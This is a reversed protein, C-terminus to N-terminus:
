SRAEKENEPPAAAAPVPPVLADIAAKVAREYPQPPYYVTPWWRDVARRAEQAKERLADVKASEAGIAKAASEVTALHRETDQKSWEVLLAAQKVAEDREAELSSVRAALSDREVQLKAVPCLSWHGVPAPSACLCDPGGPKPSSM